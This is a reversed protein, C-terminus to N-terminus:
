AEPRAEAGSVSLARRARKVPMQTFARARQRPYASHAAREPAVIVKANFVNGHMLGDKSKELSDDPLM